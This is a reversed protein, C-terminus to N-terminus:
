SGIMTEMVGFPMTIAEFSMSDSLLNSRASLCYM